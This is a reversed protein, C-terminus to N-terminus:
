FWTFFVVIELIQLQVLNKQCLNFAACIQGFTYGLYTELSTDWKYVLYRVAYGYLYFSRTVLSELRSANKAFEYHINTVPKSTMEIEIFGM